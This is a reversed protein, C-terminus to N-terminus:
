LPIGGFAILPFISSMVRGMMTGRLRRLEMAVLLSGRLVIAAPIATIAASCVGRMRMEVPTPFHTNRATCHIAGFVTGALATIGFASTQLDANGPFAWFSPVSTSSVPTHEDRSFGFFAIVLRDFRPVRAPISPQTSPLEPSWVVTPRQVDPPKNWWLSWLFISVVAAYCGRTGHGRPILAYPRPVQTLAVDKSLADGKSKDMIEAADVQRIAQQLETSDRLQEWTAVPSGASSVFGGVGLFFGHTMIEPAIMTIVMMKLRRRFLAIWSQSPPPCM